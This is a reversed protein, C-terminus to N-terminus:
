QHRLNADTSPEPDPSATRVRLRSTDAKFRVTGKVNRLLIDVASASFSAGVQVEVGRASEGVRLATAADLGPRHIRKESIDLDYTEAPPAPPEQTAFVVALLAAALGATM